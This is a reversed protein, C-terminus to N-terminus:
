NATSIHKQHIGEVALLIQWLNCLTNEVDRRKTVPFSKPFGAVKFVWRRPERGNMLGIVELRSRVRGPTKSKWGIVRYVWGEGRSLAALYSLHSDKIRYKCQRNQDTYYLSNAAAAENDKIANKLRGAAREMKITLWLAFFLFYMAFAPLAFALRGFQNSQLSGEMAQSFTSTSIFYFAMFLVALATMKTKDLPALHWFPFPAAEKTLGYEELVKFPIIYRFESKKTM